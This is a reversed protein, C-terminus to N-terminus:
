AAANGAPLLNELVDVVREINRLSYHAEAYERARRGLSDRAQRDQLLRDVAGVLEDMSGCKVGIGQRVLVDDPDVGLSLVPVGRMWAEIFTNSFGEMESTNVLLYSQLLLSQVDGNAVEGLVEIGRARAAAVLAEDGDTRGCMVFRAGHGPAIKEALTIFLEPRKLRKWNGIWMITPRGKDTSVRDSVPHGNPIIHSCRGYLARLMEAQSRTQCIVDTARRIGYVMLREDLLKHPRFWPSAPKTVDLDHAVHFVMACGSRRAYEAAVGTLALGGRQYIVDPRISCLHRYVQAAYPFKVNGLRSYLGVQRIPYLQTELLGTVPARNSIFTYFTRWGRARARQEVHYAQLEAGGQCQQWLNGM